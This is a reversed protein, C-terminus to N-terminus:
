SKCVKKMFVRLIHDNTEIINLLEWPKYGYVEGYRKYFITRHDFYQFTKPIFHRCDHPDQFTIPYLSNPVIITLKGGLELVRHCENLIHQLHENLLVQELVSAIYVIKISGDPPPFKETRIDIYKDAKVERSIDWNEWGDEKMYDLGCGINLKTVQQVM